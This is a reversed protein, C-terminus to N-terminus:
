PNKTFVVTGILGGTITLTDGSISVMRQYRKIADKGSAIDERYRFCHVGELKDTSRIECINGDLEYTRDKLIQLTGFTSTLTEINGKRREVEVTNGDREYGEMQTSLRKILTTKEPDLTYTGSLDNSGSFCGSLLVTATILILIKM